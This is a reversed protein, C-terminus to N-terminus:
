YNVKQNDYKKEGCVICVFGYETEHWHHVHKIM